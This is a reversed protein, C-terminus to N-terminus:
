KGARLCAAGARKPPVKKPMEETNSLEMEPGGLVDAADKTEADGVMSTNATIESKETTAPDEPIAGCCKQVQDPVHEALGAEKCTNMCSNSLSESAEIATESVQKLTQAAKEELNRRQEAPIQMVGFGLGVAAAGVLLGMPGLVVCGLTAAVAVGAATKVIPTDISKQYHEVDEAKLFPGQMEAKAQEVAKDRAEQELREREKRQAFSESGQSLEDYDGNRSSTPYVLPGDEHYSQSHAEQMSHSAM